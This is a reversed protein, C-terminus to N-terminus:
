IQQIGALKWEGEADGIRTLHWFENFAHSFAGQEERIYGKFEVTLVWGSTEKHMERVTAAVEEVETVNNDPEALRLTKLEDFLANTTLSSLTYWDKKDWAAQLTVYWHKAQESFIDVNFWEPFVVPQAITSPTEINSGLQSGITVHSIASPQQTSETQRYYPADNATATTPTQVTTTRRRLFYIVGGIVLLLLLIDMASIGEFAGGMFAAALLGGAALGMLPGMWSSKTATGAATTAGATTNQPASPTKNATTNSVPANPTVNRQMGSNSAGGMRKAFADTSVMSVSVLLAMAISFLKAKM